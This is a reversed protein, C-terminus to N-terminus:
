RRQTLYDLWFSLLQALITPLMSSNTLETLAKKLYSAMFTQVMTLSFMSVIVLPQLEWGFETKLKGGLAYHDQVKDSWEWFDPYTRRHLDLLVKAHDVSQGIQSALSHPGMGYQVGLICAKFRGREAAHSQKTAHAPIAGAQKAFALYSDGSKYADQM